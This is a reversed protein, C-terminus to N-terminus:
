GVSAALGQRVGPASLWTSSEYGGVVRGRKITVRRGAVNRLLDDLNRASFVVLDADAGVVPGAAPAQVYRAARTTTMAYGEAVEADSRL